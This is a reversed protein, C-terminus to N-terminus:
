GGKKRSLAARSAHISTSDIRWREWDLLGQANLTDHLAVLILAFRGEQSFRRYRDHITKWPDYRV